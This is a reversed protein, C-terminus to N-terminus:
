GVAAATHGLHARTSLVSTSLTLVLCRVPELTLWGPGLGQAPPSFPPNGSM